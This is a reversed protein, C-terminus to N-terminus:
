QTELFPFCDESCFTSLPIRYGSQWVELHKLKFNEYKRGVLGSKMAEEGPEGNGVYLQLTELNPMDKAFLDMVTIDPTKANVRLFKLKSGESLVHLLISIEEASLYRDRITLRELTRASRTCLALAAAWGGALRSPYLELNKLRPLLHDDEDIFMATMWNSLPLETGPDFVAGLPSLRLELDTISTSRARLLNGLGTGNGQFAQNFPARIRLRELKDSFPKLNEFLSELSGSAWSLLTFSVLQPGIENLFKAVCDRLINRPISEECFKLTLDQLLPLHPKQAIIRQLEELSGGLALKTLRSGHNKWIDATFRSLNTDLSPGWFQLELQSLSCFHIQAALLYLTPDESPNYTTTQAHTRALVNRVVAILRTPRQIANASGVASANLTESVDLTLTHIFKAVFPDRLRRLLKMTGPLLLNKIAINGYLVHFAYYLVTRNIGLTKRLEEPPIYQSIQLWVEAPITTDGM